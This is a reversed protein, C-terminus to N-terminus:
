RVGKVGVLAQRWEGSGMRSGWGDTDWEVGGRGVGGLGWLLGLGWGSGLAM